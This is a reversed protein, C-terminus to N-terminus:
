GTAPTYSGAAHKAATMSRMAETPTLLKTTMMGSFAGSAGLVLVAAAMTEDDPAEVICMIDERGFCFYLAHMSVGVAEFMKKAPGTRDQPTDVMAKIADTSYRGQLM